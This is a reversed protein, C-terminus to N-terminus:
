DKVFFWDVENSLAERYAYGNVTLDKIPEATTIGELTILRALKGRAKKANFSIVRYKDDRREKFHVTLLRGALKDRNVSRFYEQSALNLVLGSPDDALDENLLDTISDGWFQYLDKGRETKLRTGMELRYPQMLDSPRLLGYLGSLIRLQRDALAFERETFEGADLDLYVDGRFTLLAASANDGTFPTTFNQYRAYNLEALNNSVSMLKGLQGASKKRLVGALELTRDMLRPPLSGERRPPSDELTKAPSLLILM